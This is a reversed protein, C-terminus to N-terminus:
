SYWYPEGSPYVVYSLFRPERSWILPGGSPVITTDFPHWGGMDCDRWSIDRQEPSLMM